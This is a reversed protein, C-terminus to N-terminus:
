SRASYATEERQVDRVLNGLALLEDSAHYGWEPGLSETVRPRTDSAAGIDNVQLWTAGGASECQATYLDPYEVWTDGLHNPAALKFYPLLPAAGSGGIDAPNVCLVQGSTSTQGSQLSVGKGPRGFLADSPPESPFSSYAIVCGTETPSTCGPLHAFSGGVVKGTPVQVNGGFLLASVVRSRLSPNDDVEHELLLILMAAGQSHGIFIIPRGKNYHQLYDEFGSLLSEYAVRNANPDAGLGAELSRVTRQRYMPAWVDCVQSFRSAEAEAAGIEVPQIELNANETPQDSVTPYVFFCDFPSSKAPSAPQQTKAGNAAVVTTDLSATCPDNAMGPRCLWM